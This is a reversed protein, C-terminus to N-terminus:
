QISRTDTIVMLKAKEIANDCDKIVLNSLTNIPKDLNKNSVEQCFDRIEMLSEVLCMNIEIMRKFDSHLMGLMEKIEQDENM